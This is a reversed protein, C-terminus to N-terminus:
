GNSVEKVQALYYALTKATLEAQVEPTFVMAHQADIKKQTCVGPVTLVTGAFDGGGGFNFKHVVFSEGVQSFSYGSKIGGRHGKGTVLELRGKTPKGCDSGDLEPIFIHIKREIAM